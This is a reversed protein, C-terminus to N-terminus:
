VEPESSPIRNGTLAVAFLLMSFSAPLFARDFSRNLLQVFDEPRTFSRVYFIFVPILSLSITILLLGLLEPDKRPRFKWVRLVLLVGVVPFLFGWREINLGRELMLRPILYLEWLRYEGRQISPLVGFVAQGLHSDQASEGGVIFWVGAVVFFPLLWALWYIQGRRTVLKAIIVASIIGVCFIFAEPRTWSALALFFGGLLAKRRRKEFIGDISWISALILYATLALNAYGITAHFFIFPVSSLVVASILALSTSVKKRMWFDISALVTSIFFTPFILKSGPLIDRTIIRFLSIQLPINLPYSLGWAGWKQAGLISSEHAIGYGKMAWGAVADWSSYSRAVSLFVATAFLLGLIAWLSFVPLNRNAQPYEISYQIQGVKSQALFILGLASVLLFYIIVIGSLNLAINGLSFLFLLLTYIGAGFPFAVSILQLISVRRLIIVSSLGGIFALALLILIDLLLYGITPIM